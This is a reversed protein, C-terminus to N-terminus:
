FQIVRRIRRSIREQCQIRLRPIRPPPSLIPPIHIHPPIYIIFSPLISKIPISPIIPNTAIPMSFCNPKMPIYSSPFPNALDTPFLYDDRVGGEWIAGMSPNPPCHQRYFRSTICFSSSSSSTPFRPPPPNSPKNDTSRSVWDGLRRRFARESKKSATRGSVNFCSGV